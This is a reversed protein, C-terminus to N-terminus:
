VCMKYAIELTIILIGPLLLACGIENQMWGKEKDERFFSTFILIFGSILLGYAAM